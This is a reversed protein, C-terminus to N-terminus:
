LWSSRLYGNRHICKKTEFIIFNLDTKKNFYMTFNTINLNLKFTFCRELKKEYFWLRCFFENYFFITKKRYVIYFNNFVMNYLCSTIHLRLLHFLPPLLIQLFPWYFSFCRSFITKKFFIYFIKWKRDSRTNIDICFIPRLMLKLLFFM